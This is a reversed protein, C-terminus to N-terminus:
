FRPVFVQPVSQLQQVENSLVIENLAEAIKSLLLVMQPESIKTPQGKVFNFITGDIDIMKSEPAPPVPAYVGNNHFSNRTMALANLIDIKQAKNRISPIKDFVETTIRYYGTPPDKSADLSILLTKFFNEIIFNWFTIVSNKAIVQFELWQKDEDIKIGFISKFVDDSVRKGYKVGFINLIVEYWILQSRLVGFVHKRNDEDSYPLRKRITRLREDLTKCSQFFQVLDM